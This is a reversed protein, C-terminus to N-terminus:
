FYSGLSGMYEHYKLPYQKLGNIKLTTLKYCFNVSERPNVEWSQHFENEAVLKGQQKHLLYPERVRKTKIKAQANEEYSQRSHDVLVFLKPRGM